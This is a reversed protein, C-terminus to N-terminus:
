NQFIGKALIIKFLQIQKKTKFIIQYKSLVTNLCM